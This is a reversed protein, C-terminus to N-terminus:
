EALNSRRYRKMVDEDRLSRADVCTRCLAAEGHLLVKTLM